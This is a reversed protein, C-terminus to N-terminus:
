HGIFYYSIYVFVIKMLQLILYYRSTKFLIHKSSIYRCNYEPLSLKHKSTHNHKSLSFKNKSYIRITIFAYFIHKSDYVKIVFDKMCLFTRAGLSTSKM